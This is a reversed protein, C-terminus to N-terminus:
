RETLLFNTHKRTCNSFFSVSTLKEFLEFQGRGESEHAIKISTKSFSVRAHKEGFQVRFWVIIGICIFQSIEQGFSFM